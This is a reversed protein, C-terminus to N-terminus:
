HFNSNSFGYIAIASIIQNNIRKNVDIDQQNTSQIKM